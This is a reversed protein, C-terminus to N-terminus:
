LSRRYLNNIEEKRFKNVQYSIIFYSLLILIFTTVAGFGMATLVLNTPRGSQYLIISALLSALLGSILPVPVFEWLLNAKLKSITIGLIRWVSLELFKQSILISIYNAFVLISFLLSTLIIATLRTLGKGAAKSVEREYSGPQIFELHDYKSRIQKKLLAIETDSHVQIVLGSIGHPPLVSINNFFPSDISLFMHSHLVDIKFYDLSDVQEPVSVIGVISYGGGLNTGIGFNPFKTKIIKFDTNNVVVEKSGMAPMKGDLLVIGLENINQPDIGGINLRKKSNTELIKSYPIDVSSFSANTQIFSVCSIVTSIEECLEDTPTVIAKATTLALVRDEGLERVKNSYLTWTYWTVSLLYATSFIISFGVIIPVIFGNWSKKYATNKRALPFNNISFGLSIMMILGALLIMSAYRIILWLNENTLTTDFKLKLLVIVIAVILGPIWQLSSEFMWKRYFFSLPRGLIRTIRFVERRKYWDSSLQIFISILLIFLLLLSARKQRKNETLDNSYYKNLLVTSINYPAYKRSTFEEILNHVQNIINPDSGKFYFTLGSTRPLNTLDNSISQFIVVDTMLIQKLRIDALGSIHGNSINEDLRYPGGYQGLYFYPKDIFVGSRIKILNMDILSSSFYVKPVSYLQGIEGSILALDGKILLNQLKIITERKIDINQSFSRSSIPQFITTNIPIDYKKVLEMQLSYPWLLLLFFAISLIAVIINNLFKTIKNRWIFLVAQM